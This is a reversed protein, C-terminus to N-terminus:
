CIGLCSLAQTWFENPSVERDEHSSVKECHLDESQASQLPGDCARRLSACLVFLAGYSAVGPSLRERGCRGGLLARPTWLM